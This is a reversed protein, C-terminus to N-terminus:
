TCLDEAEQRNKRIRIMKEIVDEAYRRAALINLGMSGGNYRALVHFLPRHRDGGERIDHLIFAASMLNTRANLLDDDAEVLGEESLDERWWRPHIQTLGYAAGDDGLVTEHCGSEQKVVAALADAPVDYREAAERVMADFGEINPCLTGYDFARPECVPGVFEVTEPGEAPEPIESGGGFSFAYGMGVIAWMFVLEKSM